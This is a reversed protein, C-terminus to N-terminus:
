FRQIRSVVWDVVLSYKKKIFDIILLDYIKKYIKMIIKLGNESGYVSIKKVCKRVVNIQKIFANGNEPVTVVEDLRM